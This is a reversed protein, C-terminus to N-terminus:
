STHRSGTRASAGGPASSRSGSSECAAICRQLEAGHERIYHQLWVAYRDGDRRVLEVLEDFHVYRTEEVEERDPQLEGTQPGFYIAVLENEVLGNDLVAYYRSTFGRRLPVDIGLEERVRRRAAVDVKEWPFPHGCCSNAWKGGSHYKGRARRQLLLRGADDVIFVSFARHLLGLEHVERKSRYGIVRDGENIVIIEASEESAPM